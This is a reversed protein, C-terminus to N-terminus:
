SWLIYHDYSNFRLSAVFLLHENDNAPDIRPMAWGAATDRAHNDVSEV